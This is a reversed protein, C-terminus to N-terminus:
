DSLVVMFVVCVFNFWLFTTSLKWWGGGSQSSECDPTATCGLILMQCKQQCTCFCQCRSLQFIEDGLQPTVILVHVIKPSTWQLLVIILCSLMKISGTIICPVKPLLAASIGVNAASVKACTLM